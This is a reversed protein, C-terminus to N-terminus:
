SPDDDDAGDLETHENILKLIDDCADSSPYDDELKALITAVSIRLSRWHARAQAADLEASVRLNHDLNLMRGAEGYVESLYHAIEERYGTPGSRTVIRANLVGAQANIQASPDRGARLERLIKEAEM